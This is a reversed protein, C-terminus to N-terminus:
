LRTGKSFKSSLLVIGLLLLSSLQRLSVARRETPGILSSINM